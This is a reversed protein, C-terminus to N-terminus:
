EAKKEGEAPAEAPAAEEVPAVAEEQAKKCSVFAFSMTVAILAILLASFISKRM